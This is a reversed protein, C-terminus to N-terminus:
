DARKTTRTRPKAPFKKVPAKKALPSTKMLDKAHEMIEEHVLVARDKLDAVVPAARKQMDKQIEGIKKVAKKRMKPDSFAVAAAGVAVGVTAGVMGATIVSGSHKKDAM